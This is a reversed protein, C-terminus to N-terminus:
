VRCGDYVRNKICSKWKGVSRYKSDALRGVTQLQLFDYFFLSSFLVSRFFSVIFLHTM